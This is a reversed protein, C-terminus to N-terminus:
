VRDHETKSNDKPTLTVIFHPRPNEWGGGESLVNKFVQCPANKHMKSCLITMYYITPVIYKCDFRSNHVSQFLSVEIILATLQPGM